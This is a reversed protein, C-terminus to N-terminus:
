TILRTVKLLFYSMSKFEIRLSMLQFVGGKSKLSEYFHVSGM